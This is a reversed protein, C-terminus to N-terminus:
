SPDPIPYGWFGFCVFGHGVRHGAGLVCIVTYELFM